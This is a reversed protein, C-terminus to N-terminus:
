NLKPLESEVYIFQDGLYSLADGSMYYNITHSEVKDLLSNDFNGIAIPNKEWSFYVESVNTTDVVHGAVAGLYSDTPFETSTLSTLTLSHTILGQEGLKGVIGGIYYMDNSALTISGLSLSYDVTGFSYGVIGGICANLILDNDSKYANIDVDSTSLEIPGWSYGAIGGIYYYNQVSEEEIIGEVTIEGKAYSNSVSVKNSGVIGGISLGGKSDTVDITIDSESQTISGGKGIIGGIAANDASVIMEGSVFISDISVGDDMYGALTGIYCLYNYDITVRVNELTLNTISANEKVKGYLGTFMWALKEVRGNPNTIVLDYIGFGKGDLHGYFDGLSTDIEVSEDNYIDNGLEYYYVTTSTTKYLDAFTQIVYPNDETGKGKDFDPGGDQCSIMSISIIVMVFLIFTKNRM